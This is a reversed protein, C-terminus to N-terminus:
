LTRRRRLWGVLGVGISGLLIAGPAPICVTAIEVSYLNVGSDLFNLTITEEGPQPWIEFLLTAENLGSNAVPIGVIETVSANPAVVLAGILGHGAGGCGVEYSVEIQVLKHAAESYLNPITVDFDVTWGFIEGPGWYSAPQSTVTVAATATADILFNSEVDETIYWTDPGLVTGTREFDWVTYTYPSNPYDDLITINAQATTAMFAFVILTFIIRKM